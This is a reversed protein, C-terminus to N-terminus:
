RKIYYMLKEKLVILIAIPYIIIDLPEFTDKM